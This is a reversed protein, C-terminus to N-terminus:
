RNKKSAKILRDMIAHGLGVDPVEEAIIVPCHHKDLAHLRTFLNAAAEVLNGDRSLLETREKPYDCDPEKYLLFCADGDSFDIEKVIRVRKSPSYHYDLQGPSEPNILAEKVKTVKGVVKEIEEVPVGGPRLLFIGNEEIKVITSEVGVPSAGGDLIMEIKEGLQSEVHEARTPSLYSFPNASPAAILTESLSILKRAVPHSPVRCAVTDLGSTVIDPIRESRPLVLTLPGPWFKEALRKAVPVIERAATELESLDALHVILPDFFPREKVQFIRAVSVPNMADAGLGYVTETPFSVLGGSRIIEAARAINEDTAKYVPM